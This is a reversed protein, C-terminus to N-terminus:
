IWQYFKSTSAHFLYKTCINSFYIISSSLSYISYKKTFYKTSTHFLHTAYITSIYQHFISHIHIQLTYQHLINHFLYTTYINLFYATSIYQHFINHIYLHLSTANFFHFNFKYCAILTPWLNCRFQTISAYNILSQKSHAQRETTFYHHYLKMFSFHFNISHDIYM